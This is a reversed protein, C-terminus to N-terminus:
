DFVANTSVVERLGGTQLGRNPLAQVDGDGEDFTVAADELDAHVVLQDIGLFLAGILKRLV